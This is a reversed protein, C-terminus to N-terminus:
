KELEAPQYMTKRAATEKRVKSVQEKSVPAADNSWNQRVYTLVDAIQQDDLAAGLPAMVNNYKKGKVELEGMLGHLVIKTAREPDGIAWAAGDLPPFTGPVGKGDVGHCAACTLSFVALGRDHIRPDPKFKREIPEESKGEAQVFKKLNALAGGLNNSSSMPTLSLDDFYVTGQAV